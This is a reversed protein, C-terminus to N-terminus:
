GSGCRCAVEPGWKMRARRRRATAPRNAWVKPRLFLLSSATTHLATVTAYSNLCLAIDLKMHGVTARFAVRQNGCRSQHMAQLADGAVDGVKLGHGNIEDSRPFSASGM